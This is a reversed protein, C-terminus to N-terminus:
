ATARGPPSLQGRLLRGFQEFLSDAASAAAPSLEGLGLFGHVLGPFRLHRVGAGAAALLGALHDGEDRLPDHGATAVIAPPLGTLDAHVPSVAPDARRRPDPVWQEVFWRVEDAELGWGHGEAEVSPESLTMDANPYALLLASAPTGRDRLGVAALVALAGGASDGALGIGTAPDAGLERRRSWAWTFASVADAVAAPGPHEPARRYDVALVAAGAVQALRRCIGDHSDLDGLVFGGGHLYLTLPRGGPAPRYLRVPLGAATRLDEVVPLEPGRPRAAARQRAAARLVRAGAARYSPGGSGRVDTVWRALGPDALDSVEAPGVGGAQGADGARAGGGGDREGGGPEGGGM